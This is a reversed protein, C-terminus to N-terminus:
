YVLNVPNGNLFAEVNERCIKMLRERTEFGAWAIHPTIYCNKLGLLPCDPKPPETELVDLGAASIIGNELAEALAYEDVVPGRSTNILMATKKMKSLFEANVMGETAPTLPCHLSIFDSREILDDRSCFEVNEFPAPHNTSALVKMGFAAAIKAVAKGIKGFGIIGLTKGDLETLPTKWYCFDKSAAWEGGHVSNSHLAVANTHELILAFVLQAVASTSYSPINCVPIGNEKCYEWDVINFGTSLLGIYKLAPLTKLLEKRLPTKNTIIIDCDNCREAILDAPTREYITCDGCKTLWDWSLDGPNTTFGDLVTIKM